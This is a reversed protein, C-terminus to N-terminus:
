DWRNRDILVFHRRQVVNQLMPFGQTHDSLDNPSRRTVHSRDCLFVPATVPNYTRVGIKRACFMVLEYDRYAMQQQFSPNAYLGIYLLGAKATTVAQHKQLGVFPMGYRTPKSANAPHRCYGWVTSTDLLLPM